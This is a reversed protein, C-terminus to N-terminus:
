KEKKRNNKHEIYLNDFVGKEELKKRCKDTLHPNNFICTCRNGQWLGCNKDHISIRKM